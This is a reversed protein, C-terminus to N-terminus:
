ECITGGKVSKNNKYNQLSNLQKSVSKQQKKNEKLDRECLDINSLLQKEKQELVHPLGCMREIGDRVRRLEHRLDGIEDELQDGTFQLETLANRYNERFHVNQCM